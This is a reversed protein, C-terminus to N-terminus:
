AAHDAGSSRSRTRRRKSTSKLKGSGTVGDLLTASFNGGDVASRLTEVGRMQDHTFETVAFRPDPRAFGREPIAVDVLSGAAVLGDIVGTSCGALHALESKARVLGDSAIELAKARPATM